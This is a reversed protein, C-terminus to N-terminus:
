LESYFGHKYVGDEDTATIKAKRAKDEHMQEPQRYHSEKFYARIKTLADSTTTRRDNDGRYDADDQMADLADYFIAVNGFNIESMTKGQDYTREL